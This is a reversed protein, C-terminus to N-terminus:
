HLSENHGMTTCIINAFDNVLILEVPKKSTTPQMSLSEKYSTDHSQKVMVPIQRHAASNGTMTFCGRLVLQGLHPVVANLFTLHVHNHPGINKLEM